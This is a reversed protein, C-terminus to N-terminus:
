ESTIKVVWIGKEDRNERVDGDSSRSNGALIYGGDSTTCVSFAVDSQSGGLFQEFQLKGHDDLQFVWFNPDGFTEVGKHSKNYDTSGCLIYSGDDSQDIGYGEDFFPRGYSRDWVLKGSLDLKVVWCDSTGMNREAPSTGHQSIDGDESFSSGVILLEKNSTEIMHSANENQSGGYSRNWALNGSTDLMGVWYDFDLQYSQDKEFRQVNGLIAYQGESTMLIKKPSVNPYISTSFLVKGDQDLKLLWSEVTGIEEAKLTHSTGVILVEQKDNIVVSSAHDSETGGHSLEWLITGSFDLQLIWSDSNGNNKLVNSDESESSGVLLYGIETEIAEGLYENQSGGFTKKWSTNGLSDLKVVVVDYDDSSHDKKEKGPTTTFSLLYGQDSTQLIMAEGHEHNGGFSRQWDIESSQSFGTKLFLCLFVISASKLLLRTDMLNWFM